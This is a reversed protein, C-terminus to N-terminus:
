VSGWSIKSITWEKAMSKFVANGWQQVADLVACHLNKGKARSVLQLTFDNIETFLKERFLVDGFSCDVWWPTLGAGVGSSNQMGWCRPRLEMKVQEKKGDRPPLLPRYKRALWRSQECSEKLNVSYLPFTPASEARCNAPAPDIFQQWKEAPCVCTIAISLLLKWIAAPGPPPLQPQTRATCLHHTGNCNESGRLTWPPPDWNGESM